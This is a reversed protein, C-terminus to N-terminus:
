LSDVWNRLLQLGAAGSKEPHFQTAWLPGSEVAAAFAAEHVATATLVRNQPFCLNTVEPPTRRAFSHVFYFYESEIGRFMASGLQPVTLQSWGMNPLRRAPLQTVSGSLVGLGQHEGKEDSSEFLIQMGVCIGLVPRESRIRDNILRQGANARFKDMVYGFAGVGPVIVGDADTVAKAENTLSVDAGSRALANCASHVNGAGYDFVVIHPRRTM